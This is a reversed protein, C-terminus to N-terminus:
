KMQEGKAMVYGIFIPKRVLIGGKKLECAHM